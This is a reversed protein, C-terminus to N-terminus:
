IETSRAILQHYHVSMFNFINALKSKWINVRKIENKKILKRSTIEKDNTYKNGRKNM